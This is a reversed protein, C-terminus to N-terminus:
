HPFCTLALLVSYRHEKIRAWSWIRIKEECIATYAYKWRCFMVNRLWYKERLLLYEIFMSIFIECVCIVPGYLIKHKGHLPARKLQHLQSISAICKTLMWWNLPNLWTWWITFSYYLSKLLKSHNSLENMRKRWADGISFTLFNTRVIYMSFFLWYLYTEWFKYHYPSWSYRNKNVALILQSSTCEFLSM